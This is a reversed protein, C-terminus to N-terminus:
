LGFDVYYDIILVINKKKRKKPKLVAGAAYPLEQALSPM